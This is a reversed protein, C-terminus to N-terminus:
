SSVPPGIAVKVRGATFMARGVPQLEVVVEPRQRLEEAAERSVVTVAVDLLDGDHPPFDANGIQITGAWTGEPAITEVGNFPRRQLYWGARESPPQIPRVWLLLEEGGALAVVQGTVSCRYIVVNQRCTVSTGAQPNTVTVDAVTLTDSPSWPSLVVLVIVVVVIVVLSAALLASVTRGRRKLEPPETEVAVLVPQAARHECELDMIEDALVSLLRLEVTRKFYDVNRGLKEAARHRRQSRSQGRTTSVGLLLETTARLEGELREVGKVILGRVARALAQPDGDPADARVVALETLPTLKDLDDQLDAVILGTPVVVERLTSALEAATPLTFMDSM